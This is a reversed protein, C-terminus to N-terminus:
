DNTNPCYATLNHVTKYVLDCGALFLFKRNVVTHTQFIEGITMGEFPSPLELAGSRSIKLCPCKAFCHGVESGCASCPSHPLETSLWLGGTYSPIKTNAAFKTLFILHLLLPLSNTLM